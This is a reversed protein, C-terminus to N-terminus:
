KKKLKAAGDAGILLMLGWATMWAIQHQVKGELYNVQTLGNFHFAVWAAVLGVAFAAGRPDGKRWAHWPAAIIGAMWAMWTLFGLIGLGGLVDLFNNHAHGAFYHKRGPYTERLWRGSLHHNMKFGAGLVPSDKFFEVNAKWLLFRDSQGFAGRVRDRVGQSTSLGLALALIGAALAAKARLSLTLAGWVLLAFPLALWVSRAYSLFLAVAGVTVILALAPRGLTSFRERQKAPQRLLDLAAFWPFIFISALSLHHGLFATAHYRDPLTPIRQPRPWGTFHQQIGIASFVGLAVLWCDVVRRREAESLSRLATLVVFPHIWYWSKALHGFRVVTREGNYELPQISAWILSLVCVALFALSVWLFRRVWPHELTERLDAAFARFGGAGAVAGVVLAAFAISMPAQALLTSVAYACLTLFRFRRAIPM